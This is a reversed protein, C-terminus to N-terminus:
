RARSSCQWNCVSREMRRMTAQINSVVITSSRWVTLSRNHLWIECTCLGFSSSDTVREISADTTGVPHYTRSRLDCLRDLASM